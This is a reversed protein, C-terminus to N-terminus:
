RLNTYDISFRLCHIRTANISLRLSNMLLHSCLFGATISASVTQHLLFLPRSGRGMHPKLNLVDCTVCHGYCYISPCEMREDRIFEVSVIVHHLPCSFLGKFLNLTSELYSICNDGYKHSIKQSQLKM